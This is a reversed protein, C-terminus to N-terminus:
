PRDKEILDNVLSILHNLSRGLRDLKWIVRVDGPPLNHIMENLALSQDKTSGRAYGIKMFASGWFNYSFKTEVFRKLGQKRFGCYRVMFDLVQLYVRRVKM